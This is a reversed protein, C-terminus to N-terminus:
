NADPKGGSVVAVLLRAQSSCPPHLSILHIHHQSRRVEPPASSVDSSCSGYSAGAAGPALLDVLLPSLHVDLPADAVRVALLRLVDQQGVPLSLHTIITGNTTQIRSIPWKQFSISPPITTLKVANNRGGTLSPHLINSM